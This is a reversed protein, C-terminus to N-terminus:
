ECIQIKENCDQEPPCDRDDVCPTFGAVSVDATRPSSVTFDVCGGGVDVRYPSVPRAPLRTRTAYPVRLRAVGDAGAETKARYVYRRGTPTRIAM